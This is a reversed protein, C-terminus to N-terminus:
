PFHDAGLSATRMWSKLRHLFFSKLWIPTISHGEDLKQCNRGSNLYLSSLSQCYVFYGVGLVEVSAPLIIEVLGAALFAVPRIQSLKSGSEFTVSSLSRHMCFCEECLVEVSNPVRVFKLGTKEFAATEIRELKSMSEIQKL